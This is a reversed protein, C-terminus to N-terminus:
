REAFVWFHSSLQRQGLFKQFARLTEEGQRMLHSMFRQDKLIDNKENIANLVIDVDLKGPTFIRLNSFGARTLLHGLGLISMFNIHHPPSVSKSYEWLMQIDFGNVTLGTLLVKGGERLLRKLSYCFALPNHVHEIVELAIALDVQGYLDTAEDAFCQLVELNKSRCVEALDPNGEIAILKTAPFKRGWEELFLGYGAGIDAVLAPSFGDRKCLEAIEKVKPRFLLKRRQEAVSPFFTKAWYSASPSEKYFREFDKQSPRPSQYLTGCVDCIVYGFGNKEFSFEVSDSECAPCPIDERHSAAFYTIADEASLELYKQFIDAKRIDSEKV